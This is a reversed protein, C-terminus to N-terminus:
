NPNSDRYAGWTLLIQSFLENRMSETLTKDLELRKYEEELEPYAKEIPVFWENPEIFVNRGKIWFNQGLATFIERKEELTGKNFRIRAHYHCFYSKSHTVKLSM